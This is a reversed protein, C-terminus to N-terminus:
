KATPPLGLRSSFIFGHAIALGNFECDKVEVRGGEVGVGSTIARVMPESPLLLVIRSLEVLVPAGILQQIKGVVYRVGEQQARAWPAAIVLDWRDPLDERALLAFLVCPGRESEIERQLAAFSDLSPGIM